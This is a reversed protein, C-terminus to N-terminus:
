VLTFSLYITQLAFSLAKFPILQSISEILASMVSVLLISLSNKLSFRLELLMITTFLAAVLVRFRFLM